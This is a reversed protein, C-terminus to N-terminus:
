TASMRATSRHSSRSIVLRQEASAYTCAPDALHLTAHNACVQPLLGGTEGRLCSYYGGLLAMDKKFTWSGARQKSVGDDTFHLCRVADIVARADAITNDVDPQEQLPQRVGPQTIVTNSMEEHLRAIEPPLNERSLHHLKATRHAPKAAAACQEKGNSETLHDRFNSTCTTQHAHPVHIVNPGCCQKGFPTM